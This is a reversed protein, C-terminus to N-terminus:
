LPGTAQSLVLRCNNVIFLGWLAPLIFLLGSNLYFISLLILVGMGILGLTNSIHHSSLILSNYLATYADLEHLVLLPFAYLLMASLGLWIVLIFVFLIVALLSDLRDIFSVWRALFFPVFAIVGLRTSNSWHTLGYRFLNLLRVQDNLLIQATLKLLATWAPAALLVGTLFAPVWWSLVLCFFLPVTSLGFIAGALLVTPLNDWLAIATLTVYTQSNLEPPASPGGSFTM